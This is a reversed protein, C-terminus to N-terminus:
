QNAGTPRQELTDQWNDIVIHERHYRWESMYNSVIWQSSDPDPRMEYWVWAGDRDQALFNAWEPALDWSPKKSM